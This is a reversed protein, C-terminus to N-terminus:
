CQQKKAHPETRAGMLHDTKRTISPSIIFSKLYIHLMFSCMQFAFDSLNPILPPVLNALDEVSWLRKVLGAEM